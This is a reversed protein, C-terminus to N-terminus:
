QLRRSLHSLFIPTIFASVPLFLGFFLFGRALVPGATGPALPAGGPCRWRPLGLLSLALLEPTPPGADPPGPRRVQMRREPDAFGCGASRTPSGRGPPSRDPPSRDPPELPWRVGRPPGRDPAGTSGACRVGIRRNWFDASGARRVGIRRNRRRRGETRRNRRIVGDLQGWDLPGRAPSRPVVPAPCPTEKMLSSLHASLPPRHRAPVAVAPSAGTDAVANGQRRGAVQKNGYM